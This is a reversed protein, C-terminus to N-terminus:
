ILLVLRMAITLRDSSRVFLAFLATHALKSDFRNEPAFVLGVREMVLVSMVVSLLGAAPAREGGINSKSM